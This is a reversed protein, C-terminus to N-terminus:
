CSFSPGVAARGPLRGDLPFAPSHRGIAGMEPMLSLPRVAEVEETRRRVVSKLAASLGPERVPIRYTKSLGSVSIPHTDM